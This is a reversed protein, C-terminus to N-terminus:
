RPGRKVASIFVLGGDAARSGGHLFQRAWFYVPYFFVRRLSPILTWRNTLRKIVFGVFSFPVLFDNLVCTKKPNYTYTEQVEFGCDRVFAVWEELPYYHYHQWFKNFFKRYRLALGTLGLSNLVSNIVTFRDFNSSPVTFYLRGSPSLLRHAEHLVPKLDPIHELVSNSFITEYSGDPKPIKDGKCEILEHYANLERARQLERADPDIGTDIQGEFIMKAFLGEGCGIDLVPRKLTLHAYIEAELAREFALPLPAMSMYRLLVESQTKVDNLTALRESARM